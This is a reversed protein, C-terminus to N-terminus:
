YKDGAAIPLEPQDYKEPCATQETGEPMAVQDNLRFKETLDRLLQAQGSLEESAAASEEATASNTQVVSSIQEVGFTIQSIADSQRNTALSIKEVTATVEEARAVVRHLSQATADAIKTGNEVQRISNEILTTTNKAAEASKSALNRVEDAVVSFGKGAAGARAAEVAANLALINTQFAIDEITKIIKGIEGSSEHILSMAKVMDDMHQNSTEIEHSVEAVSQSASATHEANDKVHSSIESISASLEEVSSAQETAGQALEEASSSVQQSGSAVQEAAQDIQRFTHNLSALIGFISSKLQSYDGIYELDTGVTLNGREMESVINSIDSIYSRISAISQSFAEGLIGIENRSTVKIEANLDGQAIRQAAQAMEAVPKSISRSIWIAIVISVLFSLFVVGAMAIDAIQSQKSLDAAMQKGTTTKVTILAETSSRIGNSLPTAERDMLEAAETDRNEKALQVIKARTQSFKTMNEQIYNYYDLEKATVMGKQMNKLYTELKQNSRDLELISDQIKKSDSMYIVDRIIARGQNFETNFLGIDGQAFGYDTLAKGYTTNQRAMVIIGVIGSISSIIAVALFTIMLRKGIKMNKFMKRM